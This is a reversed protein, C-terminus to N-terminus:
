EKIVLETNKIEGNECILIIKDILKDVPIGKFQQEVNEKIKYFLLQMTKSPLAKEINDETYEDEGVKFTFRIAM